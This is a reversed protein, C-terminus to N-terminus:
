RGSTGDQPGEIQGDQPGDQGGEPDAPPAEGTGTPEPASSESPVAPAESDAPAPSAGTSPDVSPESSSAPSAEGTPSNPTAPETAPAEDVTGGWSTGSGGQGHVTAALPKGSLLEFALIGGMSLAFTAAAAVLLRVWLPGSPARRLRPTEATAPNLPVADDVTRPLDSPGHDRVTAHAAMALGEEGQRGVPADEERREQEERVGALLGQAQKLRSHGRKIYHTYVANGVTTAASALAAGIITGTVGLYSAAVAATAAALAGGMVQPASLDM